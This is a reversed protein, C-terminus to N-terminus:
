PQADYLWRLALERYERALQHFPDIQLVLDYDRIAAPYDGMRFYIYARTDLYNARRPYDQLVRRVDALAQTYNGLKAHIYARNNLAAMDYPNLQYARDYADLAEGYNELYDHVLGINYYSHSADPSLALSQELDALACPYDRLRIYCVARYRYILGTVRPQQEILTTFDSVAEDYREARVLMVGRQQYANWFTPDLNIARTYDDLRSQLETMPTHQARNYYDKANMGAAVM